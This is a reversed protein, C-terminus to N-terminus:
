RHLGGTPPATRVTACQAHHRTRRRLAALGGLGTLLLLGGAPLPIQATVSWVAWVDTPERSFDEWTWYGPFSVYDGASPDFNFAAGDEVFIGNSSFPTHVACLFGSECGQTLSPRSDFNGLPGDLFVQDLLAHSAARADGSTTFTFDSAQDCQDFLAICTGDRFTVDYLTGGVDVGTAGTLQGTGDIVLTAAGAPAATMGISLVIASLINRVTQMQKGGESAPFQM